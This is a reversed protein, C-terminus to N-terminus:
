VKFGNKMFPTLSDAFPDYHMVGKFNKELDIHQAGMGDEFNGPDARLMQSDPYPLAVPPYPWPWSTSITGVSSMNGIKNYVTQHVHGHYSMWHDFKRMIDRIEPADETQFNWRPYYDWLPSHTFVVVAQDPRLKNVDKKLWDLQEERVGWPGCIPSELMTVIDMRQEPSMNKATWFDHLLISNMGIFHVGKHDFSWTPSGFHGRWAAGMDLYWDHEGPIVHLPMTLRSLIKGGKQLQTATGNQAIDGTYVVFDPLPKMAMVKDVADSLQSDFKHDAIDYLHSDTIIAFRFPTVKGGSMGAAEAVQVMGMNVGVASAMLTALGAKGSITFFDRRSMKDLDTM